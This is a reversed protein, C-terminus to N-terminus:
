LLHYLSVQTGPANDRRRGRTSVAGDWASLATATARYASKSVLIHPRKKSNARERISRPAIQAPPTPEPRECLSSEQKRDSLVQHCDPACENSSRLLSTGSLRPMAGSDSLVQGHKQVVCVCRTGATIREHAGSDSRLGYSVRRCVVGAEVLLLM